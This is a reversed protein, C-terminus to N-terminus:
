LFVAPMLLFASRHYDAVKSECPAVAIQLEIVSNSKYTHETYTQYRHVTMYGTYGRIEKNIKFFFMTEFVHADSVKESKPKPHPPIGSPATAAAGRGPPAARPPMAPSRPGAPGPPGTASDPNAGPPVPPPRCVTSRTRVM